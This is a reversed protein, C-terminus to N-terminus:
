RTEQDESRRNSVSSFNCNDLVGECKPPVIRVPLQSYANSFEEIRAVM